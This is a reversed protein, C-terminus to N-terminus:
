IFKFEGNELVLTPKTKKRLFFTTRFKRECESCKFEQKYISVPMYYPNSAGAYRGGYAWRVKHKEVKQLIDGGCRCTYWVPLWMIVPKTNEFLAM